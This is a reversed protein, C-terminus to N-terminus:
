SVSKVELAEKLLEKATKAHQELNKLDDPFNSANSLLNNIENIMSGIQDPSRPLRIALIARAMKEIDEPPVMEDTLSSVVRVQHSTTDSLM